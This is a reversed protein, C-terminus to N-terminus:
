PALKRLCCKKYKQGSGCVCPDNRGIGGLNGHLEIRSSIVEDRMADLSEREEPRISEATLYEFDVTRLGGDDMFDLELLLRPKGQNILLSSLAHRRALAADRGFVGEQSCAVSLAGEDATSLFRRKRRLKQGELAAVISESLRDLADPTFDLLYKSAHLYGAKREEFLIDLIREVLKPYKRGPVHAADPEDVLRGYYRDLADTYGAWQIHDVGNFRRAHDVYKLHHLYLGLHILEDDTRLIDERIANLRQDMFHLFQGPIRLVEAYVRLDDLSLVWAPNSRLDAGIPGLYEAQAAFHTLPDLTVCMALQNPLDESKVTIIHIHDADCLDIAGDQRLAALLRNAQRAPKEFLEKFNSQLAQFDTAPSTPTFAGAKVEIVLLQDDLLLVADCECWQRKSNVGTKARYHVNRLVMAGPMLATLREVALRESVEKQRDNWTSTCDPKLRLILRQLVRYLYDFLHSDFCYFRGGVKIFPREQIPLERLPWGSYEGPALLSSSEGPSYSLEELLASPLGSVHEVDFIDMELKGRVSEAKSAWEDGPPTLSEPLSGVEDIRDEAWQLWEQHLARASEIADCYGFTLSHLMSGFGDVLEDATVQFLGEIVDSHPRLLERLRPVEHVQFRAGRVVLWHMQASTAFSDVEHDYNSNSQEQYASRALFYRLGLLEYLEEVHSSIEHIDQETAARPNIDPAISVILSQGYEIVHYASLQAGEDRRRGTIQAHAHGWAAHHMVSLPELRVLLAKIREIM